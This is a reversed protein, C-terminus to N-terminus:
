VSVSNNFNRSRLNIVRGCEILAELKRIVDIVNRNVLGTGGTSLAQKKGQWVFVGPLCPPLAVVGTLASRSRVLHVRIM